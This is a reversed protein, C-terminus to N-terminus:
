PLDKLGEHKKPHTKSEHFATGRKGDSTNTGRVNLTHKQNTFQPAEKENSTKSCRANESDM